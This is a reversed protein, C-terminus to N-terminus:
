TEDGGQIKIIIEAQEPDSGGNESAGSGADTSGPEDNPEVDAGNATEENPENDAGKEAGNEAGNDAGDQQEIADYNDIDIEGNEIVTTEYREMEGLWAGAFHVSANWGFKRNCEAILEQRAKLMNLPFIMSAGTGGNAEDVSVQARKGTDRACMGYRDKFWDFRKERIFALKELKDAYDVDSLDEAEIAKKGAEIEALINESKIVLPVGKKLAQFAETLMEKSKNDSAIFLKSARSWWVLLDLSTDIEAVYSGIRYADMCPTKSLNNWGWAVVNESIGDEYVHGNYTRSIIKEGYGYPTPAGCNDAMMAYYEGDGKDDRRIAAIGNTLLYMELYEPRVTEPLGEYAFMGLLFEFAAQTEDYEEIIRKHKEKMAGWFSLNRPVNSSDVAEM